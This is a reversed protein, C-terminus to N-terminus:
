YLDDIINGTDMTDSHQLGVMGVSPFEGPISNKLLSMRLPTCLARVLSALRSMDESTPLMEVIEIANCYRQYQEERESM